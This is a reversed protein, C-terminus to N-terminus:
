IYPGNLVESIVGRLKEIGYPKPLFADPSEPHGDIAIQDSAIGSCLIVPVRPEIHRLASITAWGDLHPMFLDCIVCRIANKHQEFLEIAELGDNAKISAFGLFSVMAEAVELFMPDDDVILVAEKQLEEQIDIEQSINIKDM